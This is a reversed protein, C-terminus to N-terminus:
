LGCAPARQKVFTPRYFIRGCEGQAFPTWTNLKVVRCWNGANIICTQPLECTSTECAAPLNPFFAGNEVELRQGNECEVALPPDPNNRAWCGGWVNMPTFCFNTTTGYDPTRPRVFFRIEQANRYASDEWVHGSLIDSSVSEPLERSRCEGTPTYQWGAPCTASLPASCTGDCALHGGCNGCATGAAPHCAPQTSDKDDEDFSVAIALGQNKHMSLEVHTLAGPEVQAKVPNAIFSPLIDKTLASCPVAYAQGDVSVEGLPAGFFSLSGQKLAAEDFERVVRQNGSVGCTLCKIDAPLTALALAIEGVEDDLQATEGCSVLILALVCPWIGGCTGYRMNTKEVKFCVASHVEHALTVHTLM